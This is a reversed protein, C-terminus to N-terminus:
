HAEVFTELVFLYYVKWKKDKLLKKFTKAYVRNNASVRNEIPNFTKIKM